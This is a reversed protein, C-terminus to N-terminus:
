CRIEIMCDRYPRVRLVRRAHSASPTTTSELLVGLEFVVIYDYIDRSARLSGGAM